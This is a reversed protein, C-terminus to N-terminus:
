LRMFWALVYESKDLNFEVAPIASYKNMLIKDKSKKERFRVHAVVSVFFLQLKIVNPKTYACSKRLVPMQSIKIIEQLCEHIKTELRRHCM